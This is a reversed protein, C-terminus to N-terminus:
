AQACTTRPHRSDTTPCTNPRATRYVNWWPPPPALNPGGGEIDRHMHRITRTNGPQDACCGNHERQRWSAPASLARRLRCRPARCARCRLEILLLNTSSNLDADRHPIKSFWKNLFGLNRKRTTQPIAVVRGSGNDLMLNARPCHNRLHLVTEDTLTYRPADPHSELLSVHPQLM